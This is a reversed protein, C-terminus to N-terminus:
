EEVVFTVRGPTLRLSGTAPDGDDMMEDLALQQDEPALPQLASIAAKVGVTGYDWDWLGGIPTPKTWALKGLYPAMGDPIQAPGVDPPYGSHEFSYMQFAESAVKMAAIFRVNQARKRARMFAPLAVAALLAIIAVVIMIEVLTFGSKRQM